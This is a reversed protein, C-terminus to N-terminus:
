FGILNSSKNFEGRERASFFSLLNNLVVHFATIVLSNTLIDLDLNRINKKLPQRM